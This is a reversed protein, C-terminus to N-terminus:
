ADDVRSAGKLMEALRTAEPLGLQTHIAPKRFDANLLLV